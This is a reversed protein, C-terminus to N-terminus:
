NVGYYNYLDSLLQKSSIRICYCGSKTLNTFTNDIQQVRGRTNNENLPKTNGAQLRRNKINEICQEIPTDLYYFVTNAQTSIRNSFNAWRSSITSTLLGEFIVNYGGNLFIQIREEIEDQSKVTDCGGCTTRYSGVIAWNNRVNYYGLVKGSNDKWENWGELLLLQHIIYSKGSGSTGRINVVIQKSHEM